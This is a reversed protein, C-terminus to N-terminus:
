GGLTGSSQDTLITSDRGRRKALSAITRRRVAKQDVDPIAPKKEAMLTALEQRQREAEREASRRARRAEQAQKAVSGLLAGGILEAGM